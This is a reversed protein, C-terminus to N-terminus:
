RVRPIPVLTEFYPGITQHARSLIRRSVIDNKTDRITEMEM